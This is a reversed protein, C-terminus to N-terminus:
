LNNEMSALYNNADIEDLYKQVESSPVYMSWEDIPYLITALDSICESLAVMYGANYGYPDGISSQLKTNWLNLLSQLTNRM